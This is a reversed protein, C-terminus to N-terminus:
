RLPAGDPSEAPAVPELVWVPIQRGARRQYEGYGPYVSVARAWYAEREPGAALRARVAGRNGRRDITADPHALLNFHWGPPQPRGWSSGFVVLRDGDPLGVLPVTRPAGSRAGTTTLEVIPLGVLM